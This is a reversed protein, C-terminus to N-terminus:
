GQQRHKLEEMQKMQEFGQALSREWVSQASSKSKREANRWPRIDSAFVTLDRWQGGFTRIRQATNRM